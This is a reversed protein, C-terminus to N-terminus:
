ALSAAAATKMLLAQREAPTARTAPRSSLFSVSNQYWKLANRKDGRRMFVDALMAATRWASPRVVAVSSVDARRGRQSASRAQM